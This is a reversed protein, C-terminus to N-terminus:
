ICSYDILVFLVVLSYNTNINTHQYEVFIYRCNEVHKLIGFTKSCLCLLVFKSLKYVNLPSTYLNIRGGDVWCKANVDETNKM